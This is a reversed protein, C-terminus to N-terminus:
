PQALCSFICTLGEEEEKKRKFRTKKREKKNKKKSNKNKITPPGQMQPYRPGEPSGQPGTHTQPLRQHGTVEQKGPKTGRERGAAIVLLRSGRHARHGPHLDRPPM